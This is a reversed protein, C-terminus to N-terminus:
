RKPYVFINAEAPSIEAGNISIRIDAAELDVDDGDDENDFDVILKM